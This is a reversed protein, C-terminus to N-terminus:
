RFDGRTRPGAEGRRPEAASAAGQAREGETVGTEPNAIRGTSASRADVHRPVPRCRALTGSVRGDRAPVVTARKRACQNGAPERASPSETRM